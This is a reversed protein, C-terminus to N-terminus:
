KLEEIKKLLNETEKVDEGAEKGLELAKLAAARADAKRGLKYLISAHTDNNYYKSDLEVSKKAWRAAHELMAKDSVSEYFKWAFSNLQSPNEMAYKEVYKVTVAAFSTWDGVASYYAIQGKWIIGDADGAMNARIEKEMADLAVKDKSRAIKAFSREYVNQIKRSVSDATYKKGFEDQHKLLYVFAPSASSTIHRYLMNWNFRSSFEEPKVHSFYKDVREGVPACGDSLATFLAAVIAADGPSTNFKEELWLLTLEPKLADKGKQIFNQPSDSGCVRHVLKGSGDIFLFTPYAQVGYTKALEIGEGSEMDFKANVYSSNYFDAVTDNTFVNKAMWKCPGCWTTYADMMILKNEKKAKALIEKWTGTEFQIARNQAAAVGCFLAMTILICNRM